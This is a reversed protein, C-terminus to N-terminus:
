QVFWLIGIGALWHQYKLSSDRLLSKSPFHLKEIGGLFHIRPPWIGRAHNLFISKSPGIRQVHDCFLILAPHFGEGAQRAQQLSNCMSWEKHSHTRTLTTSTRQFATHEPQQQRASGSGTKDSYCVRPHWWHDHGCPVALERLKEPIAGSFYIFFISNAIEGLLAPRSVRLVSSCHLLGRTLIPIKTLM